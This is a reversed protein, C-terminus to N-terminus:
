LSHIAGWFHHHKLSEHLLHHSALSLDEEYGSCGVLYGFAFAIRSTKQSRTKESIYPVCGHDGCKMNVYQELLSIAHEEGNTDENGPKPITCKLEDEMDVIRVKGVFSPV